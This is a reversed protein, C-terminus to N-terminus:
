LRLKAEGSFIMFLELCDAEVGEKAEVASGSARTITSGTVLCFARLVPAKLLFPMGLICHGLPLCSASYQSAAHRPKPRRARAEPRRVQIKWYLSSCLPVRRMARPSTDATLKSAARCDARWCAALTVRPALGDASRLAFCVAALTSLTM